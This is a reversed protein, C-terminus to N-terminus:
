RLRQVTITGAVGDVRLRWGGSSQYIIVTPSYAYHYIYAYSTQQWIQGNQLKFLTEGDWGTFEGDIRSEVVGGSSAPAAISAPPISPAAPTSRIASASRGDLVLTITTAPPVRYSDLIWAGDQSVWTALVDGPYQCM